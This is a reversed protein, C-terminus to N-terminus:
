NPTICGKNIKCFRLLLLFPKLLNDMSRSWRSVYCRKPQTHGNSDFNKQFGQVDLSSGDNGHYENDEKLGWFDAAFIAEQFKVWTPHDIDAEYQQTIACPTSDMRSANKYVTAIVTVKNGRQTITAITYYECFSSEYSFKYAEDVTLTDFDVNIACPKLYAHMWPTTSTRHVYDAIEELNSIDNDKYAKLLKFNLNTTDYYPLTDVMKLFSTLITDRTNSKTQNLTQRCSSFVVAVLFFAIKFHLARM